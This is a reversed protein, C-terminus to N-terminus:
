STLYSYIFSGFVSTVIGSAFAKLRGILIEKSSPFGLMMRLHETNVQSVTEISKVEAELDAKNETLMTVQLLAQEVEQKNRKAETRLEEIAKIGELLNDRATDIKAIRVDIDEQIDNANNELYLELLAGFLTSSFIPQSLKLIKKIESLLTKHFAM